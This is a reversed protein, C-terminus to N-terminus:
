AAGLAEPAPGGTLFGVTLFSSVVVWDGVRKYRLGGAKSTMSQFVSLLFM